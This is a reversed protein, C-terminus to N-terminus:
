VEYMMIIPNYLLIDSTSTRRTANVISERNSASNYTKCQIQIVKAGAWGSLKYKLTVLDSINTTYATSTTGLDNQYDVNNTVVDGLAEASAGIQVKFLISNDADKRGYATTFELIVEASSSTPTYSIQGGEVLTWSTTVDQSATVTTRQFSINTKQDTLVTTLYTM